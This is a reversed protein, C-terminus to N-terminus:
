QERSGAGRPATTYVVESLHAAVAGQKRSRATRDHVCGGVLPDWLRVFFTVSIAPESTPVKTTAGSEPHGMNWTQPSSPRLRAHTVSAPQLMASTPRSMYWARQYFEALFGRCSCEREQLAEPALGAPGSVRGWPFVNTVLPSFTRGTPVLMQPSGSRYAWLHEPVVTPSLWSPGLFGPSDLKFGAFFAFCLCVEFMVCFM